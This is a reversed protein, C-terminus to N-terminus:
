FDYIMFFSTGQKFSKSAGPFQTTFDDLKMTKQTCGEMILKCSIKQESIIQYIQEYGKIDEYPPDYFIILEDGGLLALNEKLWKSADAKVLNIQGHSSVKKKYSNLNQKLFKIANQNKEVLYLSDAGRSSAELGISGTGACLDVFVIGQFHQISDFLRRKLMVSTPRLSSTKPVALELGQAEGGLIRLSM